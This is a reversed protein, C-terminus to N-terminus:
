RVYIPNSLIWPRTEDALHLWVEIRYNGPEAVTFDLSRSDLVEKIVQGNRVLKFTGPLPAAARLKMTSDASVETGMPWRQTDREAIFAFGTPDAIWDFAVYARGAQLAEWVSPPDVAKMLLHTSVHRFSLEYPDLTHKLVMDGPQKGAVLPKLLVSRDPDLEAKKEGLADEVVLKGADSLRLVIGQNHHADNAAVGTLRSKLCLEDFRKLYLAPYDQLSAFVEQPYAKSAPIIALWGQPTALTRLLKPEDKVDAHTNYIETGTLGRVEWDLREELHALFILGDDRRVLDAFEQRGGTKVGKLSRTSFVLFGGTEAGPILLVGDKVGRHGDTFYDYHDAPHETFMVVRVGVARAAATIEDITGRSDHSFRSHVHLVARVDDYGTSLPVPQRQGRLAAVAEHVAKLRAMDLRAMADAATSRAALLMLCFGFAPYLRTM